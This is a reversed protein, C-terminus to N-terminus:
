RWGRSGTGIFSCLCWDWSGPEQSSWSSSLCLLVQPAWSHLPNPYLLTPSLLLEATLQGPDSNLNLLRTITREIILYTTEEETFNTRYSYSGQLMISLILLSSSPFGMLCHRASILHEMFVVTKLVIYINNNRVCINNVFCWHERTQKVLNSFSFSDESHCGEWKWEM